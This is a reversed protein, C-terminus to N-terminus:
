MEHLSWWCKPSFKNNDSNIFIKFISPLIHDSQKYFDPVHALKPSIKHKM